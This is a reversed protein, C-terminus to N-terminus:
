LLIEMFQKMLLDCINIQIPSWVYEDLDIMLLWQTEKILPLIYHNYLDRQRGTYRSWQNGCNFLTVIDKEIYPKIKEVTGDDSSDDILYFHEVGHHLYHEIWEVISDQENRFLAGVSLNYKKSITETM